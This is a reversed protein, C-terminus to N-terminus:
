QQVFKEFILIRSKDDTRIKAVAYPLVYEFVDNFKLTMFYHNGLLSFWYVLIYWKVMYDKM